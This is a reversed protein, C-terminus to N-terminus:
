PRISLYKGEFENVSGNISFSLKDPYELYSKEVSGGPLNGSNGLNKKSCWVKEALLHVTIWFLSNMWAAAFKYQYRSNQLLTKDMHSIHINVAESEADNEEYMKRRHPNHLIFHHRLQCDNVDRSYKRLKRFKLRCLSNRKIEIWKLVEGFHWQLFLMIKQFWRRKCIRQM